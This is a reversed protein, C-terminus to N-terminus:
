PSTTLYVMVEAKESQQATVGIGRLDRIISRTSTNSDYGYFDGSLHLNENDSFPKTKCFAIIREAGFSPQVTFKNNAHLVVMKGPHLM